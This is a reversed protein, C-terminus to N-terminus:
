RLFPSRCMYVCRDRKMGSAIRSRNARRRHGGTPAAAESKDAPPRGRTSRPALIRARHPYIGYTPCLAAHERARRFRLFRTPVATPPRPGSEGREFPVLGGTEADETIRSQCGTATLTCNRAPEFPTVASERRRSPAKSDHGISGAHGVFCAVDQALGLLGVPQ